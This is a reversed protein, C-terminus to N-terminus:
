RVTVSESDSNRFTISRPMSQYTGMVVGVTVPLTESEGPRLNVSIRQNAQPVLGWITFTGGAGTTAIFGHAVVASDSECSGPAGQLVRGTAPSTITQVIHGCVVGPATTIWFSGERGATVQETSGSALSPVLTEMNQLSDQVPEPVM